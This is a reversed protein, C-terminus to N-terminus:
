ETEDESILVPMDEDSQEDDPDAVPQVIVKKKAPPPATATKAKAAAKRGVQLYENSSGCRIDASSWTPQRPSSGIAGDDRPRRRKPQQKTVISDRSLFM